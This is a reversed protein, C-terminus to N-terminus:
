NVLAACWWEEEVHCRGQIAPACQPSIAARSGPRELLATRLRHRLSAPLKGLFCSAAASSPPASGCGARRWRRAAAAVREV